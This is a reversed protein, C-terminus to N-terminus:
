GVDWKQVIKHFPVAAGWPSARAIDEENVKPM